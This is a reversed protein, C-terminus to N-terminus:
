IRDLFGAQNGLVSGSLEPIKLAADNTSRDLGACIVIVAVDELEESVIEKVGTVPGIIKLSKGLGCEAPVHKSAREATRDHLVFQEKEDIILPLTKVVGSGAAWEREESWRFPLTVERLQQGLLADLQIVRELKIGAPVACREPVILNRRAHHVRY